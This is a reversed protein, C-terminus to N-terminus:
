WSLPASFVNRLHPELITGLQTVPPTPIIQLPSQVGNQLIFGLAVLYIASEFFATISAQTKGRRVLLLIRFTGLSVDMLRACLILAAGFFDM